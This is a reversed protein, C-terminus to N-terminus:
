NDTARSRRCRPILAPVRRQYEAYESFRARLMREEHRSKTRFFAVSVLGLALGLRSRWWAAWSFVACLVGLYMPHRVIGYIGTQRLVAGEVPKPYPVLGRGLLSGSQWVLAVSIVMGVLGVVRAIPRGVNSRSEGCRQMDEVVPLAAAAVLIPVQAVVWGTGRGRPQMQDYDMITPQERVGKNHSLEM